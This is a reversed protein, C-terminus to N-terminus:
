NFFKNLAKFSEKIKQYQNEAEDITKVEAFQNTLDLYPLLWKHLEDHAQGTM